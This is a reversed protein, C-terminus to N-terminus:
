QERVYLLDVGTDVGSEAKLSWLKSLEYRLNVTSVSDFIGIGYSLYLNPLLYKGVHLATDDGGNGDFTVADLGFANAIQEGIMNGGKIGLGSAASALLAADSASANSLSRGLLWHALVEDDSMSPISFLSTQLNDVPGLLHLGATFKKEKRVAKIDLNPNDLAGGSYQIKGNDVALQQGYARYTGKNIVIDGTGLLLKDTEGSVLLGGTLAGEFGLGKIQVNDGLNVNLKVRTSIPKTEKALTKDIVVVDKSASVPINFEIPALDATPINISGELYASDATMNFLLNPSAIVHMEPLNLVEVNEGVLTSSAHWGKDAFVVQGDGYFDGEGSSAKYKLHIGTDVGGELSANIASLVTGSSTLEVGANALLVNGTVAPNAVTGTLKIDVNLQGQLHEYESYLTDFVSLDKVSLSFYGSLGAQQPTDIVTKLSPVSVQGTLASVGTLDPELLMNAVAGKGNLQFDINANRLAIVTNELTLDKELLVRGDTLSFVGQGSIPYQNRGALEFRGKLNGELPDLSNSFSQLLTLPITALEGQINWDGHASNNAQICVSGTASQLCHKDISGHTSAIRIAGQESLRWQGALVHELTLQSFEGQWNTESLGGALQASVKLERNAVDVSVQHKDTTGNLDVTVDLPASNEVSLGVLSGKGSMVGQQSMDLSLKSKWQNISVVNSYALKNGDIDAFIQAAALNGSVTGLATLAGTLEPHFDALNSSNVVWNLTKGENIQGSATIVSQGSQLQFKKVTLQQALYSFDSSFHVPRQRLTGSIDLGKISVGVAKTNLNEAVLQWGGSLQGPWQSSIFAPNVKNLRVSGKLALMDQWQAEGIFSMQGSEVALKMNLDKAGQQSIKAQAQVSVPLSNISLDGDIKATADAVTGAFALQGEKIFVAAESFVTPLAINKITANAQLSPIANQWDLWGVLSAQGDLGNLQLQTINLKNSSGEMVGKFNFAQQQAEVVGNIALRYEDLGGQITLEGSRSAIGSAGNSMPWAFQQWQGTLELIPLTMVNNVAGYLSLRLGNENALISNLTWSDLDKSLLQASWALVPWGKQQYGADFKIDAQNIDGQATVQISNLHGTQGDVYDALNLQAIRANMQWSLKGLLNKITLVSTSQMPKIVKLEVRLESANGKIDGKGALGKLTPDKAFWEYALTTPYDGSLQISGNLKLGAKGTSDLSLADITLIDGWLSLAAQLNRIPQTMAQGQQVTLTNVRVKKLSLVLPSSIAPLSIPTSTQAGNGQQTMLVDDILLENITLRGRILQAAQWSLTLNNISVRNHEDVQYNIQEFVAGDLLRGSVKKVTLEPVLKQSLSLVASLGSETLALWALLVSILLFTALLVRLGARYMM